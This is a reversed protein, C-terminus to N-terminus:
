TTSGNLCKPDGAGAPQLGGTLTDCRGSRFRDDLQNGIASNLRYLEFLSARGLEELILDYNM